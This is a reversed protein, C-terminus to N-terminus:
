RGDDGVRAEADQRRAEIIDPDAMVLAQAEERIDEPLRDFSEQFHYHSLRNFIDRPMAMQVSPHMSCLLDRNLIAAMLLSYAAGVLDDRPLTTMPENDEANM